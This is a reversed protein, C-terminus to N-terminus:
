FNILPLTRKANKNWFGIQLGKKAETKNILGIQLGRQKKTKNFIGIQVGHGLETTNIFGMQLGNFNGNDNFLALSIGNGMESKNNIFSVHLGNLKESSNNFLNLTLGNTIRAHHYASIGIGNLKEADVLGGTSLHFGNISVTSKEVTPVEIAKPILFYFLFAPNLQLNMGSISQKKYDDMVGINVDATNHVKKSPNVTFIITDIKEILKISDQGFVISSILMAIFLITTKM